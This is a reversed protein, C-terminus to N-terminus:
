SNIEILENTINAKIFIQKQAQEANSYLTITKLQRGVEGASNYIVEVQGEQGPEITKNPIKVETCGCGSDVNNIILAKTGENKFVFTFSVIEGAKLPGFNHIEESFVFKATGSTKTQDAPVTKKTGSNCSGLVMGFLCLLVTAVLSLKFSSVQFKSSGKM